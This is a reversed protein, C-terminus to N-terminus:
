TPGLSQTSFTPMYNQVFLLYAWWHVQQGTTGHRVALFAVFLVLLYLPWTRMTRRLVFFGWGRVGLKTGLLIKTILFGSLVFFADVGIWGFECVKGLLWPLRLDESHCLVVLVVALARLGDLQPYFRPASSNHSQSVSAPM